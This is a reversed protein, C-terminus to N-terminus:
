KLPAGKDNPDRAPFPVYLGWITGIHRNIHSWIEDIDHTKDLETTSEKFVLKKQLERWIIEKVRKENWDLEIAHRLFEQVTIGHENLEKALLQFYKHLARNQSYTRKHAEGTYESSM